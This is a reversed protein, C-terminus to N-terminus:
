KNKFKLNQKKTDTSLTLKKNGKKLKVSNKTIKIVLYDNIKDDKKYWNGNIMASSNIITSLIFNIKNVKNKITNSKSSDITNSSPTDKTNSSSKKVYGNKELFVFPNNIELIKPSKRPPKIAKIQENVWSLESAYIISTLFFTIFIISLTKM